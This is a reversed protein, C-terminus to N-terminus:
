VGELQEDKMLLFVLLHSAQAIQTQYGLCHVEVPEEVVAIEVAVVM